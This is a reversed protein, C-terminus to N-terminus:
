TGPHFGVFNSQLSLCPLHGTNLGAIPGFVGVRFNTGHEKVTTVAAQRDLTNNKEM